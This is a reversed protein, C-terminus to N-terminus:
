FSQETLMKDLRELVDKLASITNEPIRQGLLIATNADRAIQNINNSISAIRRLADTHEPVLVKFTRNTLIYYMLDSLTLGYKDAIGALKEKESPKMSVTM